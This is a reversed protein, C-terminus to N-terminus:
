GGEGGLLQEPTLGHRWAFQKLGIGSLWMTTVGPHDSQYTGIWDRALLADSFCVAREHWQLPRSVSPM